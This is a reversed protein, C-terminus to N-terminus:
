LVWSMMVAWGRDHKKGAASGAASNRGLSLGTFSPIRGSLSVSGPREMVVRVHTMAGGTVSNGRTVVPTGEQDLQLQAESVPADGDAEELHDEDV